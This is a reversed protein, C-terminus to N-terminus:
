VLSDNLIENMGGALVAIEKDVTKNLEEEVQSLYQEPNQLFNDSTPKLSQSLATPLPASVKADTRFPLKPQSHNNSSSRSTSM